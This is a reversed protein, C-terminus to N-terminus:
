EGQYGHQEFFSFDGSAANGMQSQFEAAMDQQGNNYAMTANGVGLVGANIRNVVTTLNDQQDTMLQSLANPVVATFMGGCQVGDFIATFKDETLATGLTEQQGIVTTLVNQIGQPYLRWTTM